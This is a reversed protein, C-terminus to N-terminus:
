SFALKLKDPITKIDFPKNILWVAANDLLNQTHNESYGSLFVAKIGPNIKKMKGDDVLLILASKTHTEKADEITFLTEEGIHTNKQKGALQAKSETYKVFTNEPEHNGRSKVCCSSANM